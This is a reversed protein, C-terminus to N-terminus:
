EAAIASRNAADLMEGCIGYLATKLRDFGSKKAFTKENMYAARNLEIQIAHIQRHPKGYHTTAFGGAYPINRRASYGKQRFLSELRSTLQRDAAAGWSDGLVVDPGPRKFGLMPEPSPMSHCDILVAYGFKDRLKELTSLLVSHYPHYITNLRDPIEDPPLLDDYIPQSNAVFRPIVGLGARVRHTRRLAHQPESEGWDFLHYDLEDPARNLDVDARAYNAVLMPAGLSPVFDYLMDVLADESSRLRAEPLRTRDRLSDPYHRGAHPVTFLYPAM